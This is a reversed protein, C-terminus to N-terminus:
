DPALTAVAQQVNSVIRDAHEHLTESALILATGIDEMRRIPDDGMAVETETSNTTSMVSMRELHITRAHSVNGIGSFSAVGTYLCM